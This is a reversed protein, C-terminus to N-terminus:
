EPRPWPIPLPRAALLGARELRSRCDACFAYERDTTLVSGRADEMLCGLRPCHPLGLTHGVEHVIVKGFRLRAHRRGGSRLRCRYTSLVCVTGELTALGMVGWDVHPPKTTSIDAATVGVLRFGDAPVRPRLWDLLVDARYRSRPRYYATDPLPQPPLVVVEGEYFALLARRAVEIEAEIAEAGLPQILYRRRRAVEAPLRAASQDTRPRPDRRCGSVAAALLALWARRTWAAPQPPAARLREERGGVVTGARGEQRL